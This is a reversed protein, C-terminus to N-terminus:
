RGAEVIRTRLHAAFYRHAPVRSCLAVSRSISGELKIKIDVCGKVPDLTKMVEMAWNRIGTYNAAVSRLEGPDQIKQSTVGAGQAGRQQSTILWYDSRKELSANAEPSELSVLSAKITAPVQPSRAGALPVVCCLMLTSIFFTKM